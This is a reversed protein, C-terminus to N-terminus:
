FLQMKGDQYGKGEKLGCLYREKQYLKSYTQHVYQQAKVKVSNESL